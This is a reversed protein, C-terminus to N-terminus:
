IEQTVCNRGNEKSRYLADDARKMFIPVSDTNARFESVGISITIQGVSENTDRRKLDKTEIAKQIIEAVKMAGTIPTDPLLIAFEEGGYRAVIDKGKVSDKLTSAVMKLVADGVIHGHTDNFKKFHDIDMMLFCLPSNEEKSIETLKDIKEDLAKRNYINTLFDRQGEDTVKKLSEKLDEAERKTESLNESMNNINKSLSKTCSLIKNLMVHLDIDENSEINNLEEIHKNISDSYDDNSDSFNNMIDLLGSLIEKAGEEKLVTKKNGYDDLYKNYLYDNMAEDFKVEGEKAKDIESILEKNDSEIYSFWVAFSIPLPKIGMKQMLALTKLAKEQADKHSIIKEPPM